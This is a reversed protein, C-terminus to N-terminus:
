TVGRAIFWHVLCAASCVYFRNFEMVVARDRSMWKGRVDVTVTDPPASKLVDDLVWVAPGITLFAGSVGM